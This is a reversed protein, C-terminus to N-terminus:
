LAVSIAAIALYLAPILSNMAFSSSESVHPKGGCAEFEDATLQLSKFDVGKDNAEAVLKECQALVFRMRVWETPEWEDHMSM